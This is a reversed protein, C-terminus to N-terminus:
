GHISSLKRKSHSPSNESRLRLGIQPSPRHDVAMVMQPASRFVIDNV